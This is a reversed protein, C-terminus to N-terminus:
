QTYWDLLRVEIEKEGADVLQKFLNIDSLGDPGRFHYPIVQKPMFELVADAASEVTMTYPLNMPVFAIDINKLNRMEPIDATDGAIYVRKGNKELVYGNGRGKIHFADDSEPLNYMPIAEIDFGLQTTIEGNNLVLVRKQLQIPLEESVAKPAILITDNTLVSELTEMNLHDGHIDTVLVIDPSPQGAFAEAGGVPDMYIIVNEWDLLASAHSIPTILIDQSEEMSKEMSKDIFPAQAEQGSKFNQTVVYILIVVGLLAILPALKKM